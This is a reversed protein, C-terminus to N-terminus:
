DLECGEKNEKVKRISFELASNLLKLLLSARPKLWESCSLFM